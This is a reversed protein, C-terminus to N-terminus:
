LKFTALIYVCVCVCVCMYMYVYIYIYIYINSILLDEAISNITIILINDEEKSIDTVALLILLEFAYLVCM